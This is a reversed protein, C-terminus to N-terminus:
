SDKVDNFATSFGVAASLFSVSVPLETNISKTEKREALRSAGYKNVSPGTGIQKREHVVDMNRSCLADPNFPKRVFTSDM